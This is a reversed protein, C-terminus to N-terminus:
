KGNVLCLQYYLKNSQHGTGFYKKTRACNKPLTDYGTAIYISKPPLNKEEGHVVRFFTRPKDKYESHNTQAFFFAMVKGRDVKSSVYIYESGKSHVADLMVDDVPGGFWEQSRENYRWFYDVTFFSSEIITLTICIIALQRLRTKGRSKEFFHIIGLGILIAIFLSGHASRVVTNKPETFASIFPFFLIGFALFQYFPMRRNQWLAYLAWPIWLISSILLPGFVVVTARLDTGHFLFLPSWQRFYNGVVNAINYLLSVESNWISVQSFRASLSTPYQIVWWLLPLFAIGCTSAMVLTTKLLSRIQKRWIILFALFFIPALLRGATYSYFSLALMFASLLSWRQRQTHIFRLWCTIAAVIFFHFTMIEYGIRSLVVHWPMMALAAAVFYSPWFRRTLQYALLFLMVVTAAGWVAVTLRVTYISVGFVSFVPVLSYTYIPNKYEKFAKFYVPYSIGWEDTGTHLIRAANLGFSAEDVYFGAPTQSLGYFTTFAIYGSLLLIAIIRYRM